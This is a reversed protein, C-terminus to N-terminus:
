HSREPDLWFAKWGNPVHVEENLDMEVDEMKEDKFKDEKETSIQILHNLLAREVRRIKDKSGCNSLSMKLLFRLLRANDEKTLIFVTWPHSIMTTAEFLLPVCYVRLSRHDVHEQLCDLLNRFYRRLMDECEQRTLDDHEEIAKKLHVMNFYFRLFRLSLTTFVDFLRTEGAELLSEATKPWDCEDIELSRTKKRANPNLKIDIASSVYDEVAQLDGSDILWSLCQSPHQKFFRDAQSFCIKRKLKDNKPSILKLLTRAEKETRCIHNSFIETEIEIPNQLQRLYCFLTHFCNPFTALYRIYKLTEEEMREMSVNLSANKLKQHFIFTVHYTLWPLQLVESCYRLVTASVGSKELLPNSFVYFYFWDISGRALDTEPNQKKRKFSDLALDKIARTKNGLLRRAITLELWDDCVEILFDLDGRLVKLVGVLEADRVKERKLILSNINQKWSEHESYSFNDAGRTSESSRFIRNDLVECVQEIVTPDRVGNSELFNRAESFNGRVIHKKLQLWFEYGSKQTPCNQKQWTVIHKIFQKSDSSVPSIYFVEVLHLISYVSPLIVSTLKSSNRQHKSFFLKIERRFKRSLSCIACDDFSKFSEESNSNFSLESKLYEHFLNATKQLLPSLEVEM